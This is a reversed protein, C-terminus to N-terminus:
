RSRHLYARTGYVVAMILLALTALGAVAHAVQVFVIALFIGLVMYRAPRYRPNRLLTEFGGAPMLGALGQRLTDRGDIQRRALLPTGCTPCFAYEDRTASRCTPCTIVTKATARPSGTGQPSREQTTSDYM